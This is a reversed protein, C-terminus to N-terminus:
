GGRLRYRQIKGTATKPLTEVVLVRRPRKFAAMRQRCFDILAAPDVTPGPTLVVYAVPQPVLDQDPECVVAAELVRPHELLASEVETPSVWIGGVKLMDDSRGCHTYVQEQDRVYVDGTRLWEGQFTRRTVATRCWYGTAVSEGRVLLHGPEGDGVAAGADDVLRAEYGEVVRGSTGPHIEGARNSIFIHLVETSGIGDLIEVGFRERFRHFLPAPLSEGASVGHRVSAFTDEPLGAALIAAYFSPVAFFLTPREARVLAAVREPTPPASALISTAGVALPFTLGNGLGYAFFLRAVSFCRDQPGIGLVPQAYREATYPLDAHRHMAAKPQGTTGSTYLWFAPSDAWTAYPPASPAPAAWSAFRHLRVRAPLVPDGAGVLVLDTLEPAATAIPEALAAFEGSVVAVRARADAAIFGLESGTLMTSVPVAVAGLRMAGLFTAVFEPGDAMVQLVREEPRVGTEHLAAAVAGTLEAIEGYTWDRGEHRIAVRGGEGAQLRRDLLYAAANLPESM